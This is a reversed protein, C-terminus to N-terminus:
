YLLICVKMRFGYYIRESFMIYCGDILNRTINSEILFKYVHAKSQLLKIWGAKSHSKEYSLRGCM